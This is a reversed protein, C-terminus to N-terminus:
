ANNLVRGWSMSFSLTLSQTSSKTEPASLIVRLISGLRMFGSMYEYGLAVAAITGNGTNTGFTGSWTRSFSGSVYAAATAPINALQGPCEVNGSATFSVHAPASSCVIIRKASSIDGGGGQPHGNPQISRCSAGEMQASGTATWGTILAPIATPTTPSYTVALEVTVRLQQGAVLTVGSGALLDLGFLNGGASPSWSWGIERYNVTGTEAPFDFTRKHTITAGLQSSGNLTGDNTYTGTRKSEAALGTRNVYWVTGEAAAVAGSTDTTVNQADIFATIRAEEGTDWKWLRGVDAAEFFGASATLTSGTRSVTIAGSDRKTPTTGTGVAAYAMCDVFPTSAIQDLGQDLILNRRRPLRRVVRGSRDLIALTYHVQLGIPKASINM